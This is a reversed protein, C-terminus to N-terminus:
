YWQEGTMDSGNRCPAAHTARGTAACFALWRKDLTRQKDKDFMDSWAKIAKLWQEWKKGTGPREVVKQGLLLRFLHRKLCGEVLHLADEVSQQICDEQLHAFLPVDHFGKYQGTSSLCANRGYRIANTHTKRRPPDAGEPHRWDYFDGVKVARMECKACGEYGGQSHCLLQVQAVYDASSFFLNFENVQLDTMLPKLWPKLVKPKSPGPIIDSFITFRPDSRLFFPLNLIELTVLHVSYAHNTTRFCPVGDFYVALSLFNPNRVYENWAPSDKLETPVYLRVPMGTSENLPLYRQVDVLLLLLHKQDGQPQKNVHLTLTILLMLLSLLAPIRVADPDQFYKRNGSINGPAPFIEPEHFYKRIRSINRPDPFTEQVRFYKWSGSM